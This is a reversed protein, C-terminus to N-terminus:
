TKEDNKVKESLRNQFARLKEQFNDPVKSPQEDFLEGFDMKNFDLKAIDDISIGLCKEKKPKRWEGVLQKNAEEQLIRGLRSSFCCFVHVDETKIGFTENAYSGVYHCLGKERKEALGLEDASCKSVGVKLAMGSQKFCCDYLVNDAVSKSCKMKQGKFITLQSPDDIQNQEMDKKIAEFVSLKTVVDPFSNNTANESKWSSSDLGHLNNTNELSRKMSETFCKFTLEWHTCGLPSEQLCKKGIQECNRYKLFKCEDTMPQEHLYTLQERWCKKTVEKGNITKTSDADLCKQEILTVEPSSITKQFESNEFVWEDSLEVLCEQDIEEITFNDCTTANDIHTWTRWKKFHEIKKISTVTPDKELAKIEDKKLKKGHGKCKKIKKKQLEQGVNVQLNRIGSITTLGGVQKCKEIVFDKTAEELVVIKQENSKDAIEASRKIFFEEEHFHRNDKENKHVENSNLFEGVESSPYQEQKLSEKAAKADFTKGKDKLPVLEEGSFNDAHKLATQLEKKGFDRAEQQAKNLEDANCMQAWVCAFLLFLAKM